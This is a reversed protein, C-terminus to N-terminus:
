LASTLTLYCKDTLPTMVLRPGNGLYEYNYNFKANVQRIEADQTNMNWYYRFQRVWDFDEVSHVSREILDGIVDRLHVDIVLLTCTITRKLVNLDGRVVLVLAHLM